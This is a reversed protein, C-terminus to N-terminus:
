DTIQDESNVDCAMGIITGSTNKSLSEAAAVTKDKDIDAIVVTAGANALTQAFERGMKGAGGMIVGVRGKMDFIDRPM